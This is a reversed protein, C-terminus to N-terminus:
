IFINGEKRRSVQFVFSSYVERDINAKVTIEGTASNVALFTDANTGATGTANISLTVAANVGVDLDTATLTLVVTGVASNEAVTGAYLNSSFLPDNDNLDNVHITVNVESSLKPSGGDSVRCWIEYVSFTERDLGSSSIIEGSAPNVLFHSSDGSWFTVLDFTLAGNVGTDADTAVLFGASSNLPVNEAISFNYSPLSFVPANDNSDQITVTCTVTVSKPVTGYDTVTIELLYGSTVERDLANAM